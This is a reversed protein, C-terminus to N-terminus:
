MRPCLGRATFSVCHWRASLVVSTVGNFYNVTANRSLQRGLDKIVTNMFKMEKFFFCMFLTM